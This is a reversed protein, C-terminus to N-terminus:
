TGELVLEMASVFRRWDAQETGLQKRGGATLRYLRV